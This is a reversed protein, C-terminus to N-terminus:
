DEIDVKNNELDEAHAHLLEPITLPEISFCLLTLIRRADDVCFEDINCLTRDYTEELDKSLSQLRKNLHVKTRSCRQLDKLQFEVYRFRTVM